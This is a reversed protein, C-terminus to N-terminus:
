VKTIALKDGRAKQLLLLLCFLVIITRMNSIISLSPINRRNFDSEENFFGEFYELRYYEDIEVGKM